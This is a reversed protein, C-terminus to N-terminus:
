TDPYTCGEHEVPSLVNLDFGLESTKNRLMDVVSPDPMPDKTFLWLGAGNLEAETGAICKGDEGVNKPPGGSVIGYEYNDETPGAFVVWYDGYMTSPLFPPGVKLKSPDDLDDIVAKLPGFGDSPNGSGEVGGTSASNYVEVETDSVLKYRARTCYFDSLPQYVVPMQEQIFWPHEVWASLNFASAPVSDFGPPPCEATANGVVATGAETETANSSAEDALVCSALVSLLLLALLTVHKM